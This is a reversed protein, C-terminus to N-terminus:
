MKVARRANISRRKEVEDLVVKRPTLTLIEIYQKPRNTKQIHCGSISPLPSIEVIDVERRRCDTDGKSTGAV